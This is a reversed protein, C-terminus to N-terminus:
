YNGCDNRDWECSDNYAEDDCVGNGILHPVPCILKLTTIVPYTVNEADFHNKCVCKGCSFVSNLQVLWKYDRCRKFWSICFYRCYSLRKVVDFISRWNNRWFTPWLIETIFVFVQTKTTKLVLRSNFHWNEPIVSIRQRVKKAFHNVM